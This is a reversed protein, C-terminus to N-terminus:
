NWCNGPRDRIYIWYRNYPSTNVNGYAYFNWGGESAINWDWSGYAFINGTMGPIYHGDHHSAIGWGSGFNSSCIADAHLKSFIYCGRIAKTIKLHGGSWGQYFPASTVYDPRVDKARYICLIPRIQFCQTDGVYPNCGSCGVYELGSSCTHSIKRWTLGRKTFCKHWSFGARLQSAELGPAISTMQRQQGQESTVVSQVQQESVDRSPRGGESFRALLQQQDLNSDPGSLSEVEDELQAWTHAMVLAMM